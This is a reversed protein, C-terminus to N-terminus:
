SVTKTLLSTILRTIPFYGMSLAVSQNNQQSLEEIQHVDYELFGNATISIAEKNQHTLYNTTKFSIKAQVPRLQNSRRDITETKDKKNNLRM